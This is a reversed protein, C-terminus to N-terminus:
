NALHLNNPTRTRQSKLFNEYVCRLFVEDSFIQFTIPLVCAMFLCLTQLHMYHIVMTILLCFNMLDGNVQNLLQISYIIGSGVDKNM